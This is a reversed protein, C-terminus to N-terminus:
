QCRADEYLSHLIWTEIVAWPIIIGNEAWVYVSYILNFPATNILPQVDFRSVGQAAGAGIIEHKLYISIFVINVQYIRDLVM